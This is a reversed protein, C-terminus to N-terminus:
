CYNDDENIRSYDSILLINLDKHDGNEVFRVHHGGRYMMWDRDNWKQFEPENWLLNKMVIKLIAQLEKLPLSFDMELHKVASGSIIRVVNENIKIVKM